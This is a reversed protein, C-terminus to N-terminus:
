RDLPKNNVGVGARAIIELEEPFEMDHMSASRVIIAAANETGETVTYKEDFRALGMPSIKNLKGIIM